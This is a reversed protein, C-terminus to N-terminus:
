PAPEAVGAAVLNHRAIAKRIGTLRLSLVEEQYFAGESHARRLDRQVGRELERLEPETKGALDGGGGVGEVARREVTEGRLFADIADSQRIFLTTRSPVSVPRGDSSIGPEDWSAWFGRGRRRYVRATLCPPGEAVFVGVREDRWGGCAPDHHERTMIM